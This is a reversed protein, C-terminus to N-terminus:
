AKLGRFEGPTYGTWRKFTRHFASAESFGLLYAVEAIAMTDDSLYREAMEKRVGNLLQRYSTGEEKLRMQLTRVSMTLRKAVEEITPKEGKIMKAIVGNAKKTFSDLGNMSKLLFAAHGEFLELLDRNPEKISLGMYNSDIVLANRPQNFFVPSRFVREYEGTHAPASHVFQVKVLPFDREALLRSYSYIGSIKYESLHRVSAISDDQISSEVITLDGEKYFTTKTTEDVIREYSCYKGFAERLSSCNMMVYGLINSFGKTLNEGLHLGIFDDGTMQWASQLLRDLQALTLKNDPSDFAALDIGSREMLAKRSVGLQEV